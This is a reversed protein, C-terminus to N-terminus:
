LRNLSILLVSTRCLVKSTKYALIYLDSGIAGATMVVNEDARKSDSSAPDIAIVRTLGQPITEWYMFLESNLAFTKRKVIKCMKKVRGCGSVALM